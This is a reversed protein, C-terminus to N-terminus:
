FAQYRFIRAGGELGALEGLAFFLLVGLVIAQVVIGLWKAFTM